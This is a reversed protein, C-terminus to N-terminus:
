SSSAASASTTNAMTDLLDMLDQDDEQDETGVIGMSHDDFGDMTSSSPCRSMTQSICTNSRVRPPPPLPPEDEDEELSLRTCSASPTPLPAVSIEQVMLSLVQDMYARDDMESVSEIMNTLYSCSLPHEPKPEATTSPVRSRTSTAPGIDEPLADLAHFPMGWETLVVDKPSFWWSSSSSSSSSQSPIGRHGGSLLNSASPTTPLVLVEEEEMDKEKRQQQLGLSSDNPSPPTFDQDSSQDSVVSLTDDSLSSSSTPLASPPVVRTKPSDQKKSKTTKTTASGCTKSRSAKPKNSSPKPTITSSPASPPTIHAAGEDNNAPSFEGDVWEMSWFDPEQDPNSKGRVGTGKVKIRAIEYALFAKGRLFCEHYYSGKDLGQTIRQFGYLNLQRQFSTVKTLKPFYRPLLSEKFENAQHISFCRGHPQWSVIHSFGDREVQHLMEYLKLPFATTASSRMSWDRLAAAGAVDPAAVLTHFTPSSPPPVDQSRDHYNHQVILHPHHHHHHHHHDRHRPHPHNSRKRSEQQLQEQKLNEKNESIVDVQSDSLVASPKDQQHRQPRPTRLQQSICMIKHNLGNTLSLSSTSRSISLTQIFVFTKSASWHQDIRTPTPKKHVM